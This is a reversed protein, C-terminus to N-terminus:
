RTVARATARQTKLGVNSELDGSFCQDEASPGDPLKRVTRQPGRQHSERPSMGVLSWSLFTRVVVLVGFIVSFRILIQCCSRGRRVCWLRWRLCGPKHAGTGSQHTSECAVDV